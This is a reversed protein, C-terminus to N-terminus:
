KKKGKSKVSQAKKVSRALEPAKKTEGPAKEADKEPEFSKRESAEKEKLQEEKRIQKLADDDMFRPATSYVVKQRQRGTFLLAQVKDTIKQEAVGLLVTLIIVGIAYALLNNYIGGLYFPSDEFNYSLFRLTTLACLNMLYTHLSYKGFFRTVPNSVHYKMLFIFVTFPFVFMLPIQCFYTVIKNGIEPGQMNFETWYGFHSQGYQNLGYLGLTILLLIFFKRGYNKKFFPVIKQEYTAFILGTLFAPASNVWWEGHFWFIKEDMWWKFSTEWFNDDMWWNAPGAWWAFHGNICTGIGLAIMFILIIAFCVKRNSIFRFCLFFVLYLLALVIPFWAYTNMMTIGLFNTVWQVKELPIKVLFMFLGYLIVDVYFPVVISKVIRKKIFGNLYDKKSDFSKILGYGSCFFFIAVFYAGANVFPTLVGSEQFTYEQSIHHLIVGMAAFGRISKMVELSTFDDNFQNKKFFKNKAGIVLVCVFLFCVIRDLVRWIPIGLLEFM